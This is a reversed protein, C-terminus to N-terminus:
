HALLVPVRAYDLIHQTTGGFVIQRFRSRTFAGKLVLDAGIDGAEELIVEGAPRGSPELMRGEAAIGHRRLHAVVEAADPGAVMHGQVSLVEVRGAVLLLPMGLAITRASEVSGNWAVVVTRGITEPAGPAALLVPRGSEFLAAECTERWRSSPSARTRGIVILDFVRGHEGVVESERGQVERWGATPGESATEIECFPLGNDRTIKLFDTRAGDAFQRWEEAVTSLYEPPISMGPMLAGFALNPQGLVLLGELHSAFRKALLIAASLASRAAEEDHYPLLMTKM